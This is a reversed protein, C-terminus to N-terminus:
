YINVRSIQTGFLNAHIVLTGLNIGEKWSAIRRSTRDEEGQKNLVYEADVM